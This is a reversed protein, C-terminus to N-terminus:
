ETAGGPGPGFIRASVTADLSASPGDHVVRGRSRGIIRQGYAQALELVHLTAVVTIGDESNIERLLGMVTHALAPDLSAMPEDALIVAPAQVVARAIAVRQQQGGSLTDVRRGAVGGLGVRALAAEAKAVDDPAFWGALSRWRPAHALRGLLTNELVTLRRLLNFQQFVFGIGARYRDVDLGPRHIDEGQLLIHGSDISELRNLTRILTSKGSGSPGCVVVVEGQTVTESVDVLAHYRGYWKNVNKFEIM